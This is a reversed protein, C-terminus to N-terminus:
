LGLAVKLDEISVGVSALKDNITLEPAVTTGNHSSVIGEAKEKDKAEIDLWLADNVDVHPVDKLTIGVISLENTLEAGNLNQPKNFKIM